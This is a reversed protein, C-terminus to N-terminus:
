NGFFSNRIERKKKMHTGLMKRGGEHSSNRMNEEKNLSDLPDEKIARLMKLAQTGIITSSRSSGAGFSDRKSQQIMASLRKDSSAARRGKAMIDNPKSDDEDLSGTKLKSILNGLTTDNKDSVDSLEPSEQKDLAIDVSGEKVGQANVVSITIDETIVDPIEKKALKRQEIRDEMMKRAKEAKKLREKEQKNEKLVRQCSVIFMRITGFLYEPFVKQPNEGFILSVEEYVIIMNQFRKVLDNYKVEVEVIQPKLVEVFRELVWVSGRKMKKDKKSDESKNKKKESDLSINQTELDSKDGTDNPPDDSSHNSIIEECAEIESNVTEIKSKVLNMEARLDSYCVRCGEFLSELGGIFDFSNKFNKQVSEVIFHLLTKKNHFDKTDMLKNLSSIKFGFAGGRFGSGNMYNGMILVILLIEMFEKCNLLSNSADIITSINRSLDDLTDEWVSRFELCKLRQDVREISIMELMFKDAMAMEDKKDKYGALLAREEPTPACNRLQSIVFPTLVQDDIEIIKDRIESVPLKIQGLFINSIMGLPPPPPMGPGPPPPPPMGSSPPPPPPPPAMGPGPPPPPPPIELGPPPPPPPPPPALSPKMGIEEEKQESILPISGYKSKNIIDQDLDEVESELDDSFIEKSIEVDESEDYKTSLSDLSFDFMRSKRKDLGDSNNLSLMKDKETPTDPVATTLASSPGDVPSSIELKGLDPKKLNSQSRYLKPPPPPPPGRSKKERIAKEISSPDTSIKSIPQPVADSVFPIKSEKRVPVYESVVSSLSKRSDHDIIESFTMMEISESKKRELSPDAREIKKLLEKTNSIEEVRRSRISRKEIRDIELKLLGENISGDPNRVNPNRLAQIENEKKWLSEQALM